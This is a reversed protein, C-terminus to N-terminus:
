KKEVWSQSDINMDIATQNNRISKQVKGKFTFEYSLEKSDIYAGAYDIIAVDQSSLLETPHFPQGLKMVGAYQEYLDVMSKETEDTPKEINLGLEKAEERDIPYAHITIDGTIEKVIKKVKDKEKEIDMHLSLLRETLMKAMRYARYANGISLPHIKDVLLKYVEDMQDDKVGAKEKAFLFYSNLDEVSIELKQQPNSPDQPNFPHGTSPDVPTLEGLKGMVIKDAGLCILTGASHAKYPVIVEFEECHNRILKVIRVPALMDGGSTYLFLSIKKCKGFKELQKNLLPVVDGAIRTNFPQRDGTIYTILRSNREKELKEILEKKNM